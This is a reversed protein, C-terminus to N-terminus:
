KGYQWAEEPTLVRQKHRGLDFELGVVMESNKHRVKPSLSHPYHESCHHALTLPQRIRLLKELSRIRGQQDLCPKPNQNNKPYTRLKHSAQTM